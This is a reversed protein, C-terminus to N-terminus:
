TRTFSVTQFTLDWGFSTGDGIEVSDGASDDREADGAAEAHVRYTSAECDQWTRAATRLLSQIDLEAPHRGSRVHVARGQHTRSRRRDRAQRALDRKGPRVACPWGSRHDPRRNLQGLEPLGALLIATTARGVGPVSSILEAKKSWIESASISKQIAKDVAAIEGKLGRLHAAILRRVAKTALARRNSEATTMEILQRRRAVLASLERAEADPLPRSEPRVAEAFRALVAADIADTKARLGTSKAFNSVLRPNVVVVPVGVAALACVLEREFGGTAEVVVQVPGLKELQGALKAIGRRNNLASVAKGEPRFAVDLQKKSIDIGVFVQREEM